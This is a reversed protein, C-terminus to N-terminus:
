RTEQGYINISSTSHTLVPQRRLIMELQTSTERFFKDQASITIINYGPSLLLPEKFNGDRDTFIQRGNLSLYAIREASGSVTVFSSTTAVGNAPTSITIEPGAAFDAVQYYSYGAIVGFFLVVASIQLLKRLFM